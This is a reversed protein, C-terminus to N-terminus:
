YVDKRHKVRTIVVLKLVDDITYIIRYNGVRIRYLNDNGQLKVIGSPRPFDSLQDITNRILKKAQIPLKKFEKAASSKFNITYKNM